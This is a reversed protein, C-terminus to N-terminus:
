IDESGTQLLLPSGLKISNFAEELVAANAETFNRVLQSQPRDKPKTTLLLHTANDRVMTPVQSLRHTVAILSINYQRAVTWLRSMERSSGYLSQYDEVIILLKLLPLSQRLRNKQYNVIGMIKDLASGEILSTTFDYNRNVQCNESNLIIKNFHGSLSFVIKRLASTKGSKSPGNILLRFPPRLIEALTPM